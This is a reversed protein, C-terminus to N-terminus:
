VWNVGVGFIFGRRLEEEGDSRHELALEEVFGDIGRM